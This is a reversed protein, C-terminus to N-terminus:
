RYYQVSMSADTTQRIAKFQAISEYGCLFFANANILQGVAATPATGDSWVRINDGTLVVVAMGPSVGGANYVSATLTIATNSVTLTEHAYPIMPQTRGPCLGQPLGRAPVMLVGIMALLAFVRRM